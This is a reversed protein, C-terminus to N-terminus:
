VRKTGNELSTHQTNYAKIESPPARGVADHATIPLRSCARSPDTGLLAHWSNGLEGAQPTLRYFGRETHTHTRTRAHVGTISHICLAYFMANNVKDKKLYSIANCKNRTEEFGPGLGGKALNLWTGHM